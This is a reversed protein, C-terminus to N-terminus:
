LTKKFYIFLNRVQRSKFYYMKNQSLIFWCRKIESMMGSKEKFIYGEKQAWKYISEFDNINEFERAGLENLERAGLENLERAGLENLERSNTILDSSSSLESNNSNYSFRNTQITDSNYSFEMSINNSNELSQNKTTIIKNSIILEIVSSVYQTIVLNDIPDSM